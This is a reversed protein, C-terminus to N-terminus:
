WWGAATGEGGAHRKVVVTASDGDGDCSCCGGLASMRAREVVIAALTAAMPEEAAEAAAM